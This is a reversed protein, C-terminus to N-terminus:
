HIAIAIATKKKTERDEKEKRIGKQQKKVKTLHKQREKRGKKKLM